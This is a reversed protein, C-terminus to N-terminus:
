DKTNFFEKRFFKLTNISDKIDDMARHRNRKPPVCDLLPKNWRRCLELVSSVDIIRYHLHDIFRPMFKCLFARDAHVSSGALPAMGPFVWKQLVQLLKDEVDKETLTSERVRDVLGSSTHHSTNWEDMNDLIEDPQHMVFPGCEELVRLNRTTVIMAVELIREKNVDLGSMELDVWVMYQQKELLLDDESDYFAVSGKERKTGEKGKRGEKKAKKAESMNESNAPTPQEQSTEFPVELM